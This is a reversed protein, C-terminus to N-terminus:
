RTGSVIVVAIQLTATIALLILSIKVARIGATSAELADDISDPADHSHPVSLGYFFGKVGTPHEHGHDDHDHAHGRSQEHDHSQDHDHRHQVDISDGDEGRVHQASDATVTAPDARVPDHRGTPDNRQVHGASGAAHNQWPGGVQPNPGNM